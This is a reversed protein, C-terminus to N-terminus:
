RLKFSYYKTKSSSSSSILKVPQCTFLHLSCHIKITFIIYSYNLNMLLLYAKDSVKNTDVEIWFTTNEEKGNQICIGAIM